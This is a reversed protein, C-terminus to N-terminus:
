DIDYNINPALDEESLDQQIQQLYDNFRAISNARIVTREVKEEPTLRRYKTAHRVGTLKFWLKSVM